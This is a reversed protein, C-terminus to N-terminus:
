LARKCFLGIIKLLRSSSAVGYYVNQQLSIVRQYVHFAANTYTYHRMQINSRTRSCHFSVHTYRVHRMQILKMIRSVKMVYRYILVREAVTFSMNTYIFHQM